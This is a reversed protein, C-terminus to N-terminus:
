KSYYLFLIGVTDYFGHVLILYWVNRNFFYYLFGLLLAFYFTDIMGTIDQYSHAIAFAVSTLIIGLWKAFVKNNFSLNIRNLLYGRFFFEEFLGGIVWGIALMALLRLVHGKIDELSSLDTSKGTLRSVLPELLYNDLLAFVIGIVAALVMLKVEVPRFGYDSWKEKRLYRSLIIIILAFVIYLIGLQPSLMPLGLLVLIEAFNILTIKKM